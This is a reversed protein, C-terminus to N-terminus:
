FAGFLPPNYRQIEARVREPTIETGEFYFTRWFIRQMQEQTAGAELLADESRRSYKDYECDAVKAYWPIHSDQPQFRTDMSLRLKKSVNPVSRHVVMDHMVLLDGAGYNTRVFGEVRESPIQPLLIAKEAATQSYARGTLFRGKLLAYDNESFVKQSGPILEIGGVSEDIDMFPIWGVSFRSGRFFLTYDQHAPTPTAAKPPQTRVPALKWSYVPAGWLREMIGMIENCERLEDYSELSYIATQIEILDAINKGSWIPESRENPTILGFKRLVELIDSRTRAVTNRDLVNRFFLYGDEDFRQRLEADNSHKSSETLTTFKQM